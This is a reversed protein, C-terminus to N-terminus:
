TVTTLPEKIRWGMTLLWVMFVLEGLATISFYGLNARPFLYPQLSSEIWGLGDIVLIVGLWWPIYRSRFILVGVLILHFAFLLLAMSYDYRFWHLLLNIQAHMQAVGFSSPFEPATLMHYVPLLNFLGVFCVAAYVLQFLSALLSFAKSVPVLLFYLAWAIIIDETFNIFFAFFVALLIDPNMLKPWLTFEAYSVPNLLYAFGAILAAQRLTLGGPSSTTRM